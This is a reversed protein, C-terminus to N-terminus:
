RLLRRLLGVVSGIGPTPVTLLVKRSGGFQSISFGALPVFPGVLRLHLGREMKAELWMDGGVWGVGELLVLDDVWLVWDDELLGFRASMAHAAPFDVAAAFECVYGWVRRMRSRGTQRKHVDLKDRTFRDGDNTM